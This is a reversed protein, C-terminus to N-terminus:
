GCGNRVSSTELTDDRLDDKCWPAEVLEERSGLILGLVNFLLTNKDVWTTQRQNGTVEPKWSTVEPGLRAGLNASRPDLGRWKGRLLRQCSSFIWGDSQDFVTM